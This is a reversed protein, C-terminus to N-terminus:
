SFKTSWKPQPKRILKPPKKKLPKLDQDCGYRVLREGFHLTPLWHYFEERHAITPEMPNDDPPVPHYWGQVNARFVSSITQALDKVEEIITTSAFMDSKVGKFRFARTLGSRETGAVIEHIQCVWHPEFSKGILPKLTGVAVLNPINVRDLAWRNVQKIAAINAKQLYGQRWQWRGRVMKVEFVPTDAKEFLRYASLILHRRRRVRLSRRM